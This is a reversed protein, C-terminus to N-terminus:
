LPIRSRGLQGVKHTPSPKLQLKQLDGKHHKTLQSSFFEIGNGRLFGPPSGQSDPVCSRTNLRRSDTGNNRMVLSGQNASDNSSESQGICLLPLCHTSLSQESYLNDQAKGARPRRSVWHM